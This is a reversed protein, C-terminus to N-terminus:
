ELELNKPSTVGLPAAVSRRMRSGQDVMTRKNPATVPEKAVQVTNGFYGLDVNHHTKIELKLPTVAPSM